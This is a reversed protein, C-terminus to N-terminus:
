FKVPWLSNLMSHYPYFNRKISKKWQKLKESFLPDYKGNEVINLSGNYRTEVTNVIKLIKILNFM